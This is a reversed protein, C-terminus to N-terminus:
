RVRTSVELANLRQSLGDFGHRVTQGLSRLEQVMQDLRSGDRSTGLNQCLEVEDALQRFSQAARAFDPQQLPSEM